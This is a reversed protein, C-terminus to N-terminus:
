GENGNSFRYFNSRKTRELCVFTELKSADFSYKTFTSEFTEIVKDPTNNEKSLHALFLHKLRNRCHKAVFAAAQDNGLHGTRSSIRQKLYLPYPGNDLMLRDYNAELVLVEALSLMSAAQKGVYGLDTALALNVCNNDLFFGVTGPTDHDVEFPTINFGAAVFNRRTSIEIFYRALSAPDAAEKLVAAIVQRSAYISIGYNSALAELGLTHDSHNHTLLVGSVDRLNRGIERLSREILRLSLGADILLAGDHHAVYYCNGRSGSSLSCFELAYLASFLDL